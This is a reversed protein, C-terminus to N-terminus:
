PGADAGDSECDWLDEEEVRYETPGVLFRHRRLTACTPGSLGWRKESYCLADVTIRFDDGDRAIRAPGIRQAADGVGSGYGALASPGEWLARCHGCEFYLSAAVLARNESDVTFDLAAMSEQVAELSHQRTDLQTLLWCTTPVPDAVLDSRDYVSAVVLGGLLSERVDVVPDPYREQDRFRREHSAALLRASAGPREAAPPGAVVSGPEPEAIDASPEAADVPEPVDADTAPSPTPEPPATAADVAVPPVPATERTATPTTCAVALGLTVIAIWPRQLFEGM